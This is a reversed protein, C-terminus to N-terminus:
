KKRYFNLRDLINATAFEKNKKTLEESAKADDIEKDPEANDSYLIEGHTVVDALTLISGDARDPSGNIRKKMEKKSELIFRGKSDFVYKRSCLQQQINNDEEAEDPELCGGTKLWKNMAFWLESIINAYEDVEIARRNNEVGIVVDEKPLDGEAIMQILRDVVGGGVGTLDVNYYCKKINKYKTKRINVIKGVLQMTDSKKIISEKTIVKNIRSFITSEDDGFRAVDIGLSMVNATKLAEFDEDEMDMFREHAREVTDLGIVVDDEQQPFEGLVRVRYVNSDKGYKRAIKKAYDPKVRPSDISSFTFTYYDAKKGYFAAHFEGTTTTPNSLLIKLAGKETEAGEMTEYVQEPVGTAEDMIILVHKGHVGAMSEPKNATRASAFWTEPYQKHYLRTKTWEFSDGFKFKNQWKSIEPWLVDILQGKSPATCIIRPNPFVSIFWLIINAAIATKGTGHGSKVAISKGTKIAEPLIDLVQQQQKTPEFEDMFEDLYDTPHESFYM